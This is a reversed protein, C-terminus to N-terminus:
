EGGIGYTAIHVLAAAIARLPDGTKQLEAVERLSRARDQGVTSVPKLDQPDQIQKAERGKGVPTHSDDAYSRIPRRNLWSPQPPVRFGQAQWDAVPGDPLAAAAAEALASNLDHPDHWGQHIKRRWPREGFLTVTSLELVAYGQAAVEIPPLGQFLLVPVPSSRRALEFVFLHELCHDPVLAAARHVDFVPGTSRFPPPPSTHGNQAPIM